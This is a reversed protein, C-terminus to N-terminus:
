REACYAHECFLGTLLPKKCTCSVPTGAATDPFTVRCTSSPDAAQGARVKNVDCMNDNVPHAKLTDQLLKAHSSMKQAFPTMKHGKALLKCANEKALVIDLSLQRTTASMIALPPFSRTSLLRSKEIESLNGNREVYEYSVWIKVMKRRLECTNCLQQLGRSGSNCEIM